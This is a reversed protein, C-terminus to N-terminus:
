KNAAAQQLRRGWGARRERLASLLHLFTLNMWRGLIGKFDVVLLEITKNATLTAHPFKATCLPAPTRPSGKRTIQWEKSTHCTRNQLCAPLNSREPSLSSSSPVPREWWRWCPDRPQPPQPILIPQPWVGQYERSSTICALTLALNFIMPKQVSGVM